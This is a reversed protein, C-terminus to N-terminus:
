SIKAYAIQAKDSLKQVTHKFRDLRKQAQTQIAQKERQSAANQTLKDLEVMETLFRNKELMLAQKVEDLRKQTLVLKQLQKIKEETSNSQGM